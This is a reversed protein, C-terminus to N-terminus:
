TKLCALEVMLKQNNSFYDNKQTRFASESKIGLSHFFNTQSISPLWNSGKLRREHKNQDSKGM